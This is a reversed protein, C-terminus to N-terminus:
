QDIYLLIMANAKFTVYLSLIFGLITCFQQVIRVTNSNTNSHCVGEARTYPQDIITIVARCRLLISYHAVCSASQIHIPWQDASEKNSLLKFTEFGPSVTFSQPVSLRPVGRFDIRFCQACATQKVNM